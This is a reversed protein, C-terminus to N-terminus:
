LEGARTQWGYAWKEQSPNGETIEMYRVRQQAEIMEHLTKVGDAGRWAIFTKLAYLSMNGVNGDVTLDAYKSGQQNLHNLARQLFRGAVSQGMNVGVDFLKFGLPGNLQGVDSFRPTMWYRFAYIEVAMEYSLQSMPGTYGHARAATETVGYRTAGGRDDPDDTFKDGGEREILEDIAELVPKPYSTV